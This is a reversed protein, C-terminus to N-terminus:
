TFAIYLTGSGLKSLYIGNLAIRPPEFTKSLAENDNDCYFAWIQKGTGDQMSVEHGQTTPKVWTLETIMYNGVSIVAASSATDGTVVIPNQEDVTLAM